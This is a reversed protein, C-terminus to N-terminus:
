VQAVSNIEPVQVNIADGCIKISGELPKKSADRSVQILYKIMEKGGSEEGFLAKDVRGRLTENDLRRIVTELLRFIHTKERVLLYMQKAPLDFSKKICEQM